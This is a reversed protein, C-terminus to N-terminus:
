QHLLFMFEEVGTPTSLWAPFRSLAQSIKPPVQFRLFSESDGTFLTQLSLNACAQALLTRVNAVQAGCPIALSREAAKGSDLFNRWARKM